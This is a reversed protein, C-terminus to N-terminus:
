QRSGPLPCIPLDIIQIVSWPQGLSAQECHAHVHEIAVRGVSASAFSAYSRKAEVFNGHAFCYRPSLRALGIKCCFVFNALIQPNASAREKKNGYKSRDLRDAQQSRIARSSILTSSGPCRHVIWWTPSSCRGVERKVQAMLPQLREVQLGLSHVRTPTITKPPRRPASASASASLRSLVKRSRVRTSSRVNSTTTKEIRTYSRM